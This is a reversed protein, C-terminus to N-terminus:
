IQVIISFIGNRNVGEIVGESSAEYHHRVQSYKWGSDSSCVLAIPNSMTVIGGM